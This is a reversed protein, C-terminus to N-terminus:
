PLPNSAISWDFSGIPVQGFGSATIRVLNVSSMSVSVPVSCDTAVVNGGSAHYCGGPSDTMNTTGRISVSVVWQGGAYSASVSFAVAQTSFAFCSGPFTQEQYLYSLCSAQTRTLTYTGNISKGIFELGSYGSITATLTTPSPAGGCATACPDCPNPSCVTGVGKFVQGTGQCQCQPKVSCTTSECCAGEKCANNCEAETAFPGTSVAQKAGTGITGAKFCPM